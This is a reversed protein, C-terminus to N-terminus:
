EGSEQRRKEAIMADAFKGRAYETTHEHFGDDGVEGLYELLDYIQAHAAYYDWLTMGRPRSDYCGQRDSTFPYARGGDDFKSM